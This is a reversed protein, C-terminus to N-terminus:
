FSHLILHRKSLAKIFSIMLEFEYFDHILSLYLLHGAEGVGVPLTLHLVQVEALISLEHLLAEEKLPGLDVLSNIDLIRRLARPLKHLTERIKRFLKGSPSLVWEIQAWVELFIEINVLLLLGENNSLDLSLLDLQCDRLPHHRISFIFQSRCDVAELPPGIGFDLDYVLLSDLSDERYEFSIWFVRGQKM